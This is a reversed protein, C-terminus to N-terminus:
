LSEKTLNQFCNKEFEEILRSWSYPAWYDSIVERLRTKDMEKWSNYAKQLQPYTFDNVKMVGPINKEDIVKIPLSIVPVGCYGYQVMKLPFAHDVNDGRKRLIMGLDSAWFYVPVIGPSVIGTYHCRPHDVFKPLNGVMLLILEPNLDLWKKLDSAVTYDIWHSSGIYSVVTKGQAHLERWQQSKIKLVQDNFVEDNVGNELYYIKNEDWHMGLKKELSAKQKPHMLSIKRCNECSKKLHEKHAPTLPREFDDQFDIIQLINKDNSTVSYYCGDAYIVIDPNIKKIYKKIQSSNFRYMIKKASNHGFLYHIYADLILPWQVYFLQETKKVIKFPALLNSLWYYIKKFVNLNRGSWLDNRYDKWSFVYVIHRKSLERYFYCSRSIPKEISVAPFFLIKKRNKLTIVFISM